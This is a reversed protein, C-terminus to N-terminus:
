ITVLGRRVAYRVLGATSRIDLKAMIHTRHSEATKMSVGLLGGIEKSSKGEAILQLVERERASLPDRPVKRGNRYADVVTRSLGPSLYIGGRLIERLARVLDGGAQTKLVYAAFGVQLAELIHEGETHPTLLLIKTERSMRRIERGADLGNLHEMSLDLIAADPREREAMRVAELGDTAEAVSFGDGELITRLSQRVMKEDHALLLQTPMPTRRRIGRRSTRDPAQDPLLTSAV